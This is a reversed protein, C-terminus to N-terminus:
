VPASLAIEAVQEIAELCKEKTAYDRAGQALVQYDGARLTWRWRGDSGCAVV